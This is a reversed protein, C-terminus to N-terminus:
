HAGAPIDSPHLADCSFIQNRWADKEADSIPGLYSTNINSDLAPRASAHLFREIRDYADHKIPDRFDVANPTFGRVTMHKAAVGNGEDALALNVPTGLIVFTAGGTSTCAADPVDGTWNYTAVEVDLSTLARALVARPITLLISDFRDVGPPAHGAVATLASVTEPSFNFVGQHGILIHSGKQITIELLVDGYSRSIAPDNAAYLAENSFMQGTEIWFYNLGRILHHDFEASELPLDHTFSSDKYYHYVKIDRDLTIVFPRFDDALLKGATAIEENSPSAHAFTLFSNLFIFLGFGVAYSIVLKKIFM